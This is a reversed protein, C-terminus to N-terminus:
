AARDKKRQALRVVAIGALGALCLAGSLPEPTPSSTLLTLGVSSSGQQLTVPTTINGIEMFAYYSSNNGTWGAAGSGFAGGTFQCTIANPGQVLTSGAVPSCNSTTPKTVSNYQIAVFNDLAAGQLSSTITLNLLAGWFHCPTAASCLWNGFGFFNGDGDDVIDFASDSMGDAMTDAVSAAVEDAKVHTSLFILGALALAARIYFRTMGLEEL